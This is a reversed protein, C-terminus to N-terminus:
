SVVFSLSSPDLTSASGVLTFPGAGDVDCQVNLSFATGVVSATASARAIRPDLLAVRLVDAELRALATGGNGKAASNVYSAVDITYTPAYFLYKTTLRVILNDAVADTGVVRRFTPNPDAYAVAVGLAYPNAAMAMLLRCIDWGRIGVADIAAIPWPVTRTGSKPPGTWLASRNLSPWGSLLAKVTILPAINEPVPLRMTVPDFTVMLTVPLPSIAYVSAPCLVRTSTCLPKVWTRVDPEPPDCCSWSKLECPVQDALSPTWLVAILCTGLVVPAWSWTVPVVANAFVTLVAPVSATPPKAVAIEPKKVDAPVTVAGDALKLLTKEISAWNRPLMVVTLEAWTKLALSVDVNTTPLVDPPVWESVSGGAAAPCRTM